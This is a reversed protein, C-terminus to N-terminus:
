RRGFLPSHIGNLVLETAQATARSDEPSLETEQIPNIFVSLHDPVIQASRCREAFNRASDLDYTDAGPTDPEDLLARKHTDLRDRLNKAVGVYLPSAFIPVSAKMLAM